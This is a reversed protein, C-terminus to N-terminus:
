LGTGLFSVSTTLFRAVFYSWAWITKCSFELQRRLFIYILEVCVTRCFQFHTVLETIRQSIILFTYMNQDEDLTGLVYSRFSKYKGLTILNRLVNEEWLEQFLEWVELPSTTITPWDSLRASERCGWPSRCALGGQGDGDGPAQEFEHGNLWHHWGVM